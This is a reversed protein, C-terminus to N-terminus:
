ARIMCHVVLAKEQMDEIASQKVPNGLLDPSRLRLSQLQKWFIIQSNIINMPRLYSEPRPIFGFCGLRHTDNEILDHTSGVMKQLELKSKLNNLWKKKAFLVLQTSTPGEHHAWLPRWQFKGRQPRWTPAVRLSQRSPDSHPHHNPVSQMNGNIPFLWGFQTDYNKWINGWMKPIM